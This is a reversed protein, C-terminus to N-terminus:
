LLPRVQISDFTVEGNKAFFFLRDGESIERCRRILTRRNDICADVFDDKVIVDLTFPQDMGAVGEIHGISEASMGGDCPFGYQARQSDPEFRLECGNEYEGQGRFCLGFYQASGKVRLTVRVNASINELTRFEFGDSADVRISDDINITEGSAPIMEPPFKTGLTGDEHQVLERFM